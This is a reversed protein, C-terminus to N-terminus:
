VKTRDSLKAKIEALIMEFHDFYSQNLIISTKNNQNYLKGIRKSTQLLHQENPHELYSNVNQFSNMHLKGSVM